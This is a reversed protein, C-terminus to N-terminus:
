RGKDAQAVFDRARDLADPDSYTWWSAAQEIQAELRPLLDGEDNWFIMAVMQDALAEVAVPDPTWNEGASLAAELADCGSCSGYGQILIGDRGATDRVHFITDGQYDGFDESGMVTLGKAELLGGYSTINEYM